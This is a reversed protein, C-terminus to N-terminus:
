INCYKFDSDVYKSCKFKLLLLYILSIYINVLIKKCICVDQLIVPGATLISLFPKFDFSDKIDNSKDYLGRVASSTSNKAVTNKSCLFSGIGKFRISKPSVHTLFLKILTFKVNKM